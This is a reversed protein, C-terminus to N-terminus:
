AAKVANSEPQETKPQAELKARLSGKNGMLKLAAFVGGTREGKPETDKKTSPQAKAVELTRELTRITTDLGTLTQGGRISLRQYDGPSVAKLAFRLDRAERPPLKAGFVAAYFSRVPLNPNQFQDRDMAGPTAGVSLYSSIPQTVPFNGSDFRFRDERTKPKAKSTEFTSGPAEQPKHLTHLPQFAQATV